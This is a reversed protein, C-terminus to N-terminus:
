PATEVPPLASLPRPPNHRDSATQAPVDIIDVLRGADDLVLYCTLQGKGLNGAAISLQRERVALAARLRRVEALLDPVDQWAHAIFTSDHPNSVDNHKTELLLHDRDEIHPSHPLLKRVSAAPVYVRYGNDDLWPGPTAAGHRAEIEALRADPLPTTM